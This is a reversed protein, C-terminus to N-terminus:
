TVELNQPPISISKLVSDEDSRTQVLELYYRALVVAIFPVLVVAGLVLVVSALAFSIGTVILLIAGIVGPIALVLVLTVLLGISRLRHGRLLAASRRMAAGASLGADACVVPAVLWLAGVVAAVPLLLVLASSAGLVVVILLATLFTGLAAHPMWWRVPRDPRGGADALVVEVSAALVWATIPFYVLATSAVIIPLAWVSSEGVVDFVDGVPTFRVVLWHVLLSLAAAIVIAGGIQLLRPANRRYTRASAALLGQSSRRVIFVLAVVVAAAILGFRVPHDLFQLLAQSVDRSVECFANTAPSGGFPVPVADPRGKEEVWQVPEAWQEKAAPGTPGDNFMPRREGWHGPFSLWAFEGDTPADTPLVIVRPRVEDLPASTDDCGFGTAGSKGFWHARDFYAAHSGQGPYVVPSRDILRVKGGETETAEEVDLEVADDPYHYESGEHQAFAYLAPGQELAATVSPTGFLLQIMEWDSEHRDNWDNYVYYLWYQAVLVEGDVVARGYVVPEADLSDFWREYGCGPALADGPFDLAWDDEATALDAAAPATAFVDDDGDRLVVDGRGFVNEVAVPFYPEGEGCATRQRRLALVPAYAELLETPDEDPAVADEVSDASAGSPLGALVTALGALAIRRWKM